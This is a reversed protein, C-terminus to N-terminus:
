EQVRSPWHQALRQRVPEEKGAIWRLVQAHWVPKVAQPPSQGSRRVSRLCQPAQPFAQAPPWFQTAPTQVTMPVAVMVLVGAGGVMVLVGAGGVLM